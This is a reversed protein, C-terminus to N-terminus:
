FLNSGIPLLPSPESLKTNANATRGTRPNPIIAFMWSANLLERGFLLCYPRFM